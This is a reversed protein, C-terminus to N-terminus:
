NTCCVEYQQNMQATTFLERQQFSVVRHRYGKSKGDKGGKGGKQMIYQYKDRRGIRLLCQM